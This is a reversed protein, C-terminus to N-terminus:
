LLRQRTALVAAQTRDALGLERLINSVHNKVTGSSLHLENGIQRNTMGLAVLRLVDLERGSLRQLAAEEDSGGGVAPVSPRGLVSASSEDVVAPEPNSSPSRDLLKAAVDPSFQVIGAAASRIATALDDAAIDKTLYGVAGAALSRQVLDHEDFTTLMLVSVNSHKATIRQAAEIGDVGPMRIDMLIVDPEHEAALAVAEAGDGGTAVVEIGDSLGALSALGERIMWQDDIVIIRILEGATM